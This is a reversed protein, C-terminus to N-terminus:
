PSAMDKKCKVEFVEIIEIFRKFGIVMQSEKLFGIFMSKINSKVGDPKQAPYM